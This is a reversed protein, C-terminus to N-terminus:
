YTQKLVIIILAKEVLGFDKFTDNMNDFIEQNDDPIGDGDTDEIADETFVIKAKDVMADNVSLLAGVINGGNYLIVCAFALKIFPAMFSKMTMNQAGEIALKSNIEIIFYILTLAMGFFGIYGWVTRVADLLAANETGGFKLWAPDITATDFIAQLLCKFLDEM